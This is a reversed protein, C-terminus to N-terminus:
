PTGSAKAGGFTGGARLVTVAMPFIVLFPFCSGPGGFLRLLCFTGEEPVLLYITNKFELFKAFPSIMVM